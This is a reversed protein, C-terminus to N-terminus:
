HSLYGVSAVFLRNDHLAEGVNEEGQLWLGEVHVTANGLFKSTLFQQNLSSTKCLFGVM